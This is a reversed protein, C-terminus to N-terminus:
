EVNRIINAFSIVVRVQSYDMYKRKGLFRIQKRPTISIKIAKIRMALINVM